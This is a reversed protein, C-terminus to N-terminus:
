NMLKSKQRKSNWWFEEKTNKLKSMNYVIFIFFYLHKNLKEQM